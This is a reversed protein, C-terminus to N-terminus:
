LKISPQVPLRGRRSKKPPNQLAKPVYPPVFEDLRRVGPAKGGIEFFRVKKEMPRMKHDIKYIKEWHYVEEKLLHRPRNSYLYKFNSEVKQRRTTDNVNSIYLEPGLYPRLNVQPETPKILYFKILSKLVDDNFGKVQGSEIVDFLKMENTSFCVNRHPNTPGSHKGYLACTNLQYASFSYYQGNTIITQTSIPYTLETYPGFGLYCAQSLTWAFSHLIAQVHLAEQHDSTTLQEDRQKLYGRSLYSLYGHQAEVGPWFGPVNTARCHKYKYGMVRPDLNWSPITGETSLGSNRDLLQPLPKSHRLNLCPSGYYQIPRDMPEDAKIKNNLKDNERCKRLLKDPEIGGLSWFAELRPKLDIDTLGLENNLPSLVTVLMRNLLPIFNRSFRDEETALTKTEGKRNTRQEVYDFEQLLLDNLKEKVVPISKTAIEDVDNYVSPLENTLCTRTAFQTFPLADYSVLKEKLNCAWWGYYKPANLELLKEEVTELETIKKAVAEVKRERVAEYSLDLIPPYVPKSEYESESPQFYSSIRRCQSILTKKTAENAVSLKYAM